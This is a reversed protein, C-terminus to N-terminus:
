GHAIKELRKLRRAIEQKGQHPEPYKPNSHLEVKRLVKGGEAELEKARREMEPKDRFFETLIRGDPMETQMGM